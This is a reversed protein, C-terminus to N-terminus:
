GSESIFNRRYSGVYIDMGDAVMQRLRACVDIPPESSFHHAMLRFSVLQGRRVSLTRIVTQYSSESPNLYHDRIILTRLHPLLQSSSDALAFFLDEPGRSERRGDLELDTLLPVLRVCELLTPFSSSLKLILKQLPPRSRQLFRSLASTASANQLPFALTQLTPLLVYDLIVNADLRLCRLHPPVLTETTDDFIGIVQTRRFDPCDGEPMIINDIKLTELRPLCGLDTSCDILLYTGRIGLHKLQKAYQGVVISAGSYLGNFAIDLPYNRARKLWIELIQVRRSDLSVTAWLAPTPLAIESWPNCVNMLLM